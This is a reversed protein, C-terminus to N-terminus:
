IAMTGSFLYNEQLVVGIKTRLWLPNLHKIDINDVFISGENAIYLRQLLKALTSKGSGSRGVIGVSTGPKINLSLNQLVMPKGPGYQFSVNDFRMAGQIKELTIPKTSQVEIPHNLIDGLRDVGLLAQQFENWLNVLRLVPNTFQNAFMQFAILQGITMKNELVLKVGFYLIAITMMRQFLNSIAQAVTGLSSLKFSAKLYNGLTDEWRKQMSGEIALSKVTQIGTISEVLYSSSESAMAFKDQLRKRLVPTVTVYIAGVLAVAVLVILTLPTSYVFMMVLFILSFFMDVIVSVSKNTIFERINDLERVRAAINGVKRSEFYMYPLAFLHKFLKSGLKADIKNATHIFIYNRTVNLFFEMVMVFLFAVALVDLTSITRHVVVKDLIVQTLLPTILGMMQVFFSGTMVEFIIQKYKLIETYFWRFGFTVQSIAQRHSLIIFQGTTIEGFQYFSMEQVNKEGPLFILATQKELDIKLLVVYSKERLIVIAPLPYKEALAKWAQSSLEPSKAKLDKLKATFGLQKAVRLLEETALEGEGFGQERVVNRLDLDLRNLRAVLELCILATQM